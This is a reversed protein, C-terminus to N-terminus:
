QEDALWSQLLIYTLQLYKCADVEQRDQPYKVFFGKRLANVIMSAAPM